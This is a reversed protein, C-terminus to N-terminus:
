AAATKLDALLKKVQEEESKLDQRMRYSDTGAVEMRLDSLYGTLIHHLLTGEHHSLELKM